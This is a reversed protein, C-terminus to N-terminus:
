KQLQKLIKVLVIAFTYRKYINKADDIKTIGFSKVLVLM